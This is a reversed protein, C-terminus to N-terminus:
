SADIVSQSNILIIQAKSVRKEISQGYCYTQGHICSHVCHKLLTLLSVLTLLTILTLLLLTTLLALLKHSPLVEVESPIKEGM